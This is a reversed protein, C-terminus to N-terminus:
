GTKLEVFMEVARSIDNGVPAHTAVWHVLEQIQERSVGQATVNFVIRIESSGPCIGEDLFMGRGDSSAEVRVEIRDLRIGMRAARM